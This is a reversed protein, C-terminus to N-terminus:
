ANLMYIAGFCLGAYVSNRFMPLSTFRARASMVMEERNGAEGALRDWDAWLRGLEPKGASLLQLERITPGIDHLLNQSMSGGQLGHSLAKVLRGSLRLGLSPNTEKLSKSGDLRCWRDISM